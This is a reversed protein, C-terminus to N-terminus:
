GVPVPQPQEGGKPLNKQVGNLSGVVAEITTGLLEKGVEVGESKLIGLATAYTKSFAEKREEPTLKGDASKAKLEDVFTQMTSRVAITVVEVIREKLAEKRALQSAEDLVSTKKDLYDVGRKALWGVLATIVSGLAAIVAVIITVTNQDM